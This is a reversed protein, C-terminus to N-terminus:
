PTLKFSGKQAPLNISFSTPLPDLIQAGGVHMVLNPSPSQTHLPFQGTTSMYQSPYIYLRVHGMLENFIQSTNGLFILVSITKMGAVKVAVDM